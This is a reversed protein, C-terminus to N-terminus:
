AGVQIQALDSWTGTPCLYASVAQGAEEGWGGLCRGRSSSSGSGGGVGANSSSSSGTSVGAAASSRGSDEQGRLNEVLSGTFNLQQSRHASGLLLEQLAPLGLLPSWLCHSGGGSRAAAAAADGSADGAPAAETAANYGGVAAAAGLGVDADPGQDAV